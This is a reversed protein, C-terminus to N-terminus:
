FPSVVVPLSDGVLPISNGIRAVVDGVLPFRRGIRAVNLEIVLFPLEGVTLQRKILTRASQTLRYRVHDPTLLLSDITAPVHKLPRLLSEDSRFCRELSRASRQLAVVGLNLPFQGRRVFSRQLSV